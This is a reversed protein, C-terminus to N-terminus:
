ANPKKVPVRSDIAIIDSEGPFSDFMRTGRGISGKWYPITETYRAPKIKELKIVVGEIFPLTWVNRADPNRAERLRKIGSTEFGTAIIGKKVRIENTKGAATVESLQKMGRRIWFDGEVKDL